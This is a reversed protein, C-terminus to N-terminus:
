RIAELEALCATCRANVHELYELLKPLNTGDLAMRNAGAGRQPERNHGQDSQHKKVPSDVTAWRRLSSSDSGSSQDWDEEESSGEREGERAPEKQKQRPSKRTPTRPPESATRNAMPPRSPETAQEDCAAAGHRAHRRLNHLFDRISFINIRSATDRRSFISSNDNGGKQGPDRSLSRKLNLSTKSTKPSVKPAPPQLEQDNGLMEKLLELHRGDQKSKRQAKKSPSPRVAAVMSVCRDRRPTGTGFQETGEALDILVDCCEWYIANQQQIRDILRSSKRLSPGPGRELKAQTMQKSYSQRM